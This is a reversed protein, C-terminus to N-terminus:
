ETARRLADVLVRLADVTTFIGEVEGRRDLVVASGVKREAITEVVQDIPDTAKVGYVDASMVEEVKTDAEGRRDFLFVDRESVIGVLKGADLVPLHRVHHERMLQGALKLPADHRITWPQQTMYRSISPMLMDVPQAGGTGSAGPNSHIDIMRPMQAAPLRYTNGDRFSDGDNPVHPERLRLPSRRKGRLARAVECSGTALM